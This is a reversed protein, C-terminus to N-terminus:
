AGSASSTKKSKKKLRLKTIARNLQTNARQLNELDRSAVDYNNPNSILTQVRNLGEEFTARSTVGHHPDEDDYRM